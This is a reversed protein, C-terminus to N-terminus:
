PISKLYLVADGSFPANLTRTAGGNVTGGSVTAGTSPRFWEVNLTKSTANLNINISGGSPLYALYEPTAASANALCFGTSCLNPQPTMAALNMRLAYSRTYGLNNRIDVENGTPPLFAGRSTTAPDYVDMFLPNEGRTFSKWVWQRNGCIGCLHDTDALIVKNGTAAPPVYTDINVNSGLSIWDAPSNTLDNTSYNPWTATMGVPHQKPKAAEYSKVYNIMHYQWATNASSGTSENSIEYLVNDLDNVSDIVKRVYAEQLATIQSSALTHTEGGQNDNNLDGNISNINNALKYPHGDWPNHNGQKSEVSWGDFLMISVYIGKNGAQIVRQRLRDFYAQNLQNLDFKNGGDFACCTTSRQYPMPSFWFNPGAEGGRANEARWLRFFNHNRAVQFDLFATYNFTATIPNTDDCDMFNCWTHSGTLYVINGNPGAFYRPNVASKRLPGTIPVIASVSRIPDNTLAKASQPSYFPPSAILFIQICVLIFMLFKKGTM